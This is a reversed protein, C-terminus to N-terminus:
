ALAHNPSWETTFTSIFWIILRRGVRMMGISPNIIILVLFIRGKSAQLSRGILCLIPQHSLTWYHGLFYGCNTNWFFCHTAVLTIPIPQHPLGPRTQICQVKKQPPVHTRHAWQSYSSWISCTYLSRMSSKKKSLLVM